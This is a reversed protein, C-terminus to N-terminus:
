YMDETRPRLCVCVRVGACVCVCVRTRAIRRNDLNSQQEYMPVPAWPHESLRAENIDGRM